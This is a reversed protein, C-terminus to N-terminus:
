DRVELNWVLGPLISGVLRLLPMPRLFPLESPVSPRPIQEVPM